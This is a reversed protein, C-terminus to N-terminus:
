SKNETPQNTETNKEASAIQDLDIPVRMKKLKSDLSQRFEDFSRTPNAIPEAQPNLEMGVPTISEPM